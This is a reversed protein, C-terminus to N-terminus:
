QSLDALDLEFAHRTRVPLQVIPGHNAGPPIRSIWEGRFPLSKRYLSNVPRTSSRVSSVEHGDQYRYKIYKMFRNYTHNRRELEQFTRESYSARCHVGRAVRERLM